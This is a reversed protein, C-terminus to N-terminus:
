GNRKILQAEVLLLCWGSLPLSEGSFTQQKRVSVSPFVFQLVECQFYSVTLLRTRKMHPSFELSEGPFKLTGQVHLIKNSVLSFEFHYIDGPDDPFILLLNLFEAAVERVLGLNRRHHAFIDSFAFVKILNVSYSLPISRYPITKSPGLGWVRYNWDKM